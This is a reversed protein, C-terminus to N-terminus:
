AVVGIEAQHNLKDSFETLKVSLKKILERLEPEIEMLSKVKRYSHGASSRDQGFVAAIERHLMGLQTRMMHRIVHRAAILEPPKGAAFLARNSVGFHECVISILFEIEVERQKASTMWRTM